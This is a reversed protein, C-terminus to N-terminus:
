SIRWDLVIKDTDISRLVGSRLRRRQGFELPGLWAIRRDFRGRKMGKVFGDQFGLHNGERTGIHRYPLCASPPFKTGSSTARSKEVHCMPTHPLDGAGGACAEQVADRDVINRRQSDALRM